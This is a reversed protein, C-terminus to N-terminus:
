LVAHLLNDHVKSLRLKLETIDDALVEARSFNPFRILMKQSLQLNSGTYLKENKLMPSTKCYRSQYGSKPSIRSLCTSFPLSFNISSAPLLDLSWTKYDTITQTVRECNNHRILIWYTIRDNSGSSLWDCSRHLYQRIGILSHRAMVSSKM